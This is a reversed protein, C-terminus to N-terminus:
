LGESELCETAATHLDGLPLVEEDRPKEANTEKIVRIIREARDTSTNDVQSCWTCKNGKKQGTGSDGQLSATAQIHGGLLPEGRNSQIQSSTGKLSM